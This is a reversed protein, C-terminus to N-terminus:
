GSSSGGHGGREVAELGALRELDPALVVGIVREELGLLVAELAGRLQGERHLDDELVQQAVLVSAGDGLGIDFRDRGPEVVAALDLLLDGEPRRADEHLIEGAHRRHDIERGHAVGHLAEAAIRAADVRQDRDIEDDIMRHDDVLEAGRFGELLVDLEFIGAVALAVAEQLPALEGEVVERDHRGAGADAVLDIELEQRLRHPAALELRLGDFVGIRVGEDAGIRVGGHHVAEGHEAPADAADLRLRGHEALGQRHQDRLHDAELQRALELLAAGGGVEHEGDRLHQALLPHDALEDLEVPGAEVVHADGVAGGDAVHRGFVSGGAAKERDVPARDFIECTVLRM